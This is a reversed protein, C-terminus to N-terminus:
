TRDEVDPITVLPCRMHSLCYHGVPGAVDEAWRGRTRSGIVLMDASRAAEVLVPGTEGEAFQLCWASAPQVDDFVRQIGRRYPASVNDAAIFGHEGETGFTAIGVPWDLVHIATLRDGTLRAQKAAWQLAARASATDDLGVVIENGAV